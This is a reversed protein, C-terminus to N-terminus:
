LATALKRPMKWISAQEALTRSARPLRRAAARSHQSPKRGVALATAGARDPGRIWNRPKCPGM